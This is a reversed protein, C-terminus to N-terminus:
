IEGNFKEFFHGKYPKGNRSYACVTFYVFRNEECFSRRDEVVKQSGDPMTVKWKKANPNLSGVAAARRQAREEDTYIKGYNPNGEGKRQESLKKKTEESHLRGKGAMSLKKKTEESHKHGLTGEGGFTMNYGRGNLFHSNLELICKQEAVTKADDLDQTSYIIERSFKDKGYKRIANSLYTKRGNKADRLHKKWREDLSKSTFGVYIKGNALNTLKYIIYHM